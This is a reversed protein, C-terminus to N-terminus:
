QIVFVGALRHLLSSHNSDKTNKKEGNTAMFLTYQVCCQTHGSTLKGPLKNVAVYLNPKM